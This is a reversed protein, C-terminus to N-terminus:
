VFIVQDLCSGVIAWGNQGSYIQIPLNRASSVNTSCSLSRNTPDCCCEKFTLGSYCSCCQPWILKMCCVSKEFLM